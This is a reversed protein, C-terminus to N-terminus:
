VNCTYNLYINHIIYEYLYKYLNLRKYLYKINMCLYMNYQIYKM